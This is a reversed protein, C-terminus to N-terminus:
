KYDKKGIDTRFHKQNFNVIEVGEYATKIAEDINDGIGTIGLVRGGSTVIKGGKKDTGAHFVIMNKKESIKQLGTIEYGKTYSVPYGGSALIVCVAATNYWEINM